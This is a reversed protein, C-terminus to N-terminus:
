PATAYRDCQAVPNKSEAASRESHRRRLFRTPRSFFIPIGPNSETLGAWFHCFATSRAANPITNFRSVLPRDGLRFQEIVDDTAGVIGGRLSDAM